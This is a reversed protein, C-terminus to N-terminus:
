PKLPKWWLLIRAFLALSNGKPRSRPPDCGRVLEPLPFACPMSTSALYFCGLDNAAAAHLTYSSKTSLIDICLLTNTFLLFAEEDRTSM